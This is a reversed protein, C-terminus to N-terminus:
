LELLPPMRSVAESLLSTYALCCLSALEQAKVSSTRNTEFTVQIGIDKTSNFAFPLGLHEGLM